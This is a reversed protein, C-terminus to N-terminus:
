KISVVRAETISRLIWELPGLKFHRLWLSGLALLVAYVIVCLLLLVPPSLMGYLALGYSLAIFGMVVSEGIYVSLSIRGDGGFVQAIRNWRPNTLLLLAASLYALTLLPVFAGRMTLAITANFILTNNAVAYLANLALAPFLLWTVLRRALPKARELTPDEAFHKAAALGLLFMGLVQPAFLFPTALWLFLLEEIRHATIAAFSGTRHLNLIASYDALEVPFQLILYGLAGQTVVSLAIFCTAATILKKVPWNRMWYLPMGLIAYTVLIDGVFLFVGHLVGIILLGLLRRLYRLEYGKRQMLSHLGWGFLFSFILIFKGDFLWTTVFEAARNILGPFNQLAYTGFTGEPYFFFPANVVLIGFLAIGRLSDLAPIRNNTSM